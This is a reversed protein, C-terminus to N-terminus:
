YHLNIANGNEEFSIVPMNLINEEPFLQKLLKNGSRIYLQRIFDVKSKDNVGFTSRIEEIPVDPNTAIVKTTANIVLPKGNVTINKLIEVFAKIVQNKEDKKLNRPKKENDMSDGTLFNM